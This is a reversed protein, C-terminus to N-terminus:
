PIRRRARLGQGIRAIELEGQQLAYSNTHVSYHGLVLDHPHKVASAVIFDTNGHARFDVRGNSEEFVAIENRLHQGAVELEGTNVHTWAVTQDPGPQYSWREGDELGSPAHVPSNAHGFTGLVVRAPGVQPVAEPPLYQSEARGNELQPPLAVWLQYGHFRGSGTPSADHWVGGSARMWELGGEALHGSAGTTDEYSMRGSLLITLTAIGSHPHMPFMAGGRPEFDFYDLFVFPKILKGIDAPSVVRTVPGHTRGRTSAVIRRQSKRQAIGDITVPLTNDEARRGSREVLSAETLTTGM